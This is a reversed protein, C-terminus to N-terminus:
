SHIRFFTVGSKQPPAHVRRRGGRRRRPGDRHDQRHHGPLQAANGSAAAKFADAAAGSPPILRPSSPGNPSRGGTADIVRRTTDAENNMAKAATDNVANIATDVTHAGFDFAAKTTQVNATLGSNAAVTAATIATKAVDADLNNITATITGGETATIAGNGAAIKRDQTVTSTTTTNTTPSSSNSSPKEGHKSPSPSVSGSTIKAGNSIHAAVVGPRSTEHEIFTCGLSRAFAEIAPIGRTWTDEPSDSYGGHVCFVRVNERVVVEGFFAGVRAGSENDFCAGILDGGALRRVIEERDKQFDFPVRAAVGEAEGLGMFRVTLRSLTAANRRFSRASPIAHPM